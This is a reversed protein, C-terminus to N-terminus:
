LELKTSVLFVLQQKEASKLRQDTFGAITFTSSLYANWQYKSSVNVAKFKNQLNKSNFFYASATLDETIKYAVGANWMCPPDNTEHINYRAAGAAIFWRDTSLGGGLMYGMLERMEQGKSVYEGTLTLIIKANQGIDLESRIGGSLVRGIDSKLVESSDLPKKEHDLDKVSSIYSIGFKIKDANYLYTAKQAYGRNNVATVQYDTMDNFVISYDRNGSNEVLTYWLDNIDEDIASGDIRIQANAGRANGFELRGAQSVFYIKSELSPLQYATTRLAIDAGYTIDDGIHDEPNLQVKLSSWGGPLIASTSNNKSRTMIASQLSGKFNMSLEASAGPSITLLVAAFSLIKIRIKNFLNM